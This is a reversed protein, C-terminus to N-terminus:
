PAAVLVTNFAGSVWALAAATGPSSWLAHEQNAQGLPETATATIVVQVTSAVLDVTIQGQAGNTTTVRILPPDTTDAASPRVVFEWDLGSLDTDPFTFTQVWQSGAATTTNWLQTM